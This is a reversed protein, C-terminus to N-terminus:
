ANSRKLPSFNKENSGYKHAAIISHNANRALIRVALNPTTSLGFM